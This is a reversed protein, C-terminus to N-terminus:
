GACSPPSAHPMQYEAGALDAGRDGFDEGVYTLHGQSIDIRGIVPRIHQVHTDGPRRSEDIIDPGGDGLVSGAQSNHVRSDWDACAIWMPPHVRRYATSM